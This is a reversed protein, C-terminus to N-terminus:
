WGWTHEFRAFAQTYSPYTSVDSLMTQRVSFGVAWSRSLRYDLGLAIGWGPLIRVGPVTGGDLAFGGAFLGGWPVWQLVDLVYAIGADLGTVNSPHTDPVGKAPKEGLSVLSWSGDVMLNFADTLGYTWHAGFTGGVDPSGKGSIVLMSAGADVGLHNEREVAGALPAFTVVALAVGLGAAAARAVARM